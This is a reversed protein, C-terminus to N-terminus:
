SPYRHDNSHIKRSILKCSTGIADQFLHVSRLSRRSTDDGRRGRKHSRSPTFAMAIGLRLLLCSPGNGAFLRLITHIYEERSTDEWVLFYACNWGEKVWVRKFVTFPEPEDEALHEFTSLLGEIDAQAARVFLESTFYSRQLTANTSAKVSPIVSM